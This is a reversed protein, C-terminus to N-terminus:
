AAARMRRGLYGAYGLHDEHFGLERDRSHARTMTHVRELDRSGALDGSSDMDHGHDQTDGSDSQTAPADTM